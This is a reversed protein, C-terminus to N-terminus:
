EATTVTVLAHGPLRVVRQEPLVGLDVSRELGDLTTRTVQAGELADAPLAGGGLEVDVSATSTNFLVVTLAGGDPASFASVRLTADDAEADIRRWGPATSRSYHALVHYNDTPAPEDGSIDVLAATDGAGGTGVYLHALYSAAGGDVLTHHVLWATDLASSVMESQIVAADAAEAAARVDALTDLGLNTADSGYLHFALAGYSGAPLADAYGRVMVASGAEPAAFSVDFAGTVARVAALAEAYGAFRVDSTVGDSNTVPATGEVPLLRCAEGAEAGPLWDANNQLSVFDPEIGAVAYTALSSRWHEAFAAYDFAGEADRVLTCDPDSDVCDRAGNAKLAAPPSSSTLFVFPSQGLEVAAADLLEATVSLASADEGGELPNRLRVMSFRAEGFLQRLLETRASYGAIRGEDFGFGAGFGLLAQYTVSPDLSVRASPEGVPLCAGAQCSTGEPCSGEVCSPLCVGSSPAVGGCLAIAGSTDAGACTGLEGEACASDAECARTCTGCLCELDGCEASAECLRLWNTQSGVTPEGGSGCAELGGFPVLLAFAALLRRTVTKM